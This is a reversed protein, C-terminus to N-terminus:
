ASARSSMAGANRASSLRSSTDRLPLRSPSSTVAARWMASCCRIRDSRRAATAAVRNAPLRERLEILWEQRVEGKLQMM